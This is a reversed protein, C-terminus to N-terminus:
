RGKEPNSLPSQKSIPATLHRLVAWGLFGVHFALKVVLRQIVSTFKKEEM